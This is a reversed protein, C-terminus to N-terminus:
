RHPKAFEVATAELALSKPGPALLVPKAAPILNLAAAEAFYKSLGAVNEEDLTFDINDTLYSQLESAPLQLERAAEDCLEPLNL